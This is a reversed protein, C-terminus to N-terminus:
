DSMGEHLLPACKSYKQPHLFEPAPRYLKKKKKANQFKSLVSYGLTELYVNRMKDPVLRFYLEEFYEMSFKKSKKKNYESNWTNVPASQLVSIAGPVEGTKRSIVFLMAPKKTCCVDTNIKTTKPSIVEYCRNFWCKIFIKTESFGNHKDLLLFFLEPSFQYFGHGFYNNCPAELILHGGPKVMDMCNKIAASFNFVTHLTGGWVCDYKNKLEEPVPTNIDYIINSGEHDSYEISDVTEAGFHKFIFDAYPVENELKYM